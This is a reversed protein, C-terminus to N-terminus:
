TAYQKRETEGIRWDLKKIPDKQWKKSPKQLFFSSLFLNVIIFM